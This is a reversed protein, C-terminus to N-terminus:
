GWSRVVVNAQLLGEEGAKLETGDEEVRLDMLQRVAAERAGDKEKVAEVTESGASM